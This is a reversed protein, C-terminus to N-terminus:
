QCSMQSGSFAFKQGNDKAGAVVGQIDLVQFNRDYTISLNLNNVMLDKYLAKAMEDFFEVHYESIDKGVPNIIQIYNGGSLKPFFDIRHDTLPDGESAIIDVLGVYKKAIACGDNKGDAGPGNLTLTLSLENNGLRCELRHLDSCQGPAPQGIISDAQAMHSLVMTIFISIFAKM